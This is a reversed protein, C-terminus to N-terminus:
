DGLQERHTPQAQWKIAPAVVGPRAFWGYPSEAHDAVVDFAVSSDEHVIWRLNHFGIRPLVRYRGENLLDAPIACSLRNRGQALPPWEDLAV